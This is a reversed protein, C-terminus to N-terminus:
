DFNGGRVSYQTSFENSINVGPLTKLLNEIGPQAGKITRIIQPNINVISKLKKRQNSNLIIEEIQEINQDMVPYFEYVENIKLNIKYSINKYNVHSYIIHVDELADIEISYFGNINTTVGNKVEKSTSTINVNEIPNNNIDLVVGKIYSKQSLCVIPLLFIILLIYVKNRLM